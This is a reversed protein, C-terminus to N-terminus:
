TSDADDPDPPVPVHATILTHRLVIIRARLVSVVHRLRTNEDRLRNLEDRQSDAQLRAATLLDTYGGMLARREQRKSVIDAGRAVVFAAIISGIATWIAPANSSTFM